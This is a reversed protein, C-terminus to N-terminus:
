SPHSRLNWPADRGDGDRTLGASGEAAKRGGFLEDRDRRLRGVEAVLAERDMSTPDDLHEMAFAARASGKASASSPPEAGFARPVGEGAGLGLSDGAALPVPPGGTRGVGASGDLLLLTAVSGFIGGVAPLGLKKWFGM